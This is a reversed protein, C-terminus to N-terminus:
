GVSLTMTDGTMTVTGRLAWDDARYTFSASSGARTTGAATAVLVGGTAAFTRADPSLALVPTTEIRFSIQELSALDAAWPVRIGCNAPAVDATRTCQELYDDLQEQAARVAEPSLTADVAVAVPEENTVVAIAAGDVLGTPAATVAYVAPLLNVIGVPHLVGGIRVADGITTTVQLSALYDADVRWRGGEQTLIFGM